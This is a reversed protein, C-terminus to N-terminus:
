KEVMRQVVPSYIALHTSCNVASNQFLMAFSRIVYHPLTNAYASKRISLCINEGTKTSNVFM